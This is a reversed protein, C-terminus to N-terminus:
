VIDGSYDDSQSEEHSDRPEIERVFQEPAQVTEIAKGCNRCVRRRFTSVHGRVTKDTRFDRCGCKPCELRGGTARSAMEALTM